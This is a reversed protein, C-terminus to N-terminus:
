AFPVPGVRLAIGRNQFGQIPLDMEDQETWNQAYRRVHVDVRELRPLADLERKDVALHRLIQEKYCTRLTLVELSHPLSAFTFGPHELYDGEIDMARLRVFARLSPFVDSTVRGRHLTNVITLNELTEWCPSLCRVVSTFVNASHPPVGWSDSFRIVLSRLQNFRPLFEQLHPLRVQFNQLTLHQMSPDHSPRPEDIFSSSSDQQVGTCTFDRLSPICSIRLLTRVPLLDGYDDSIDLNLVRLKSLSGLRTIDTPNPSQIENQSRPLDGAACLVGLITESEVEYQRM